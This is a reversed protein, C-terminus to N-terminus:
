NVKIMGTLNVDVDVKAKNGNDNETKDVGRSSAGM